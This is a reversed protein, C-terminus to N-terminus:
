HLHVETERAQAEELQRRSSSKKKEKSPEGVKSTEVVKVQQSASWDLKVTVHAVKEDEDARQDLVNDTLSFPFHLPACKAADLTRVQSWRLKQLPARCPTEYQNWHCAIRKM